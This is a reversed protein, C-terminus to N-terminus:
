CYLILFIQRLSFPFQSFNHKLQFGPHKASLQLNSGKKAYAHRNGETVSIDRFLKAFFQGSLKAHQNM